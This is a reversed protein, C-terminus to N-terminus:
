SCVSLLDLVQGGIINEDQIKCIESRNQDRRVRSDRQSIHPSPLVEVVFNRQFELIRPLDCEAIANTTAQHAREADRNAAVVDIKRGKLEFCAGVIAAFIEFEVGLEFSEQIEFM